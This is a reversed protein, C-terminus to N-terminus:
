KLKYHSPPPYSSSSPFHQSLQCFSSPFSNISQSALTSNWDLYHSGLRQYYQTFLLSPWFYHHAILHYFYIKCRGFTSLAMRTYYVFIRYLISHILWRLLLHICLMNTHLLIYECLSLIIWMSFSLSCITATLSSFFRVFCSIM